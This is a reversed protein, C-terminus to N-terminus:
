FIGLKKNTGNKLAMMEIHDWNSLKAATKPAFIM